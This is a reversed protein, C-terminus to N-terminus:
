SRYCKREEVWIEIKDYLESVFGWFAMSLYFFGINFVLAIFILLVDIM